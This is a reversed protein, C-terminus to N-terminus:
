ENLGGVRLPVEVRAPVASCPWSGEGTSIDTPQALRPTDPPKVPSDRRDQSVERETQQKPLQILVHLERAKRPKLSRSPLATEWACHPHRRRPSRPPGPLARVRSATRM